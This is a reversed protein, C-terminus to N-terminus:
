SKTFPDDEDVSGIEDEEERDNNPKTVQAELALSKDKPQSFKNLVDYEFTQLSRLLENGILSNM